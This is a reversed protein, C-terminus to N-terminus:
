GAVAFLLIFSRRSDLFTHGSVAINSVKLMPVKTAWNRDGDPYQAQLPHPPLKVWVRHIDEEDGFLVAGFIRDVVDLGADLAIAAPILTFLDYLIFIIPTTLNTM